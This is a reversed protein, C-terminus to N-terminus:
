HSHSGVTSREYVGNPELRTLLRVLSVKTAATLIPADRLTAEVGARTGPRDMAADLVIEEDSRLAANLVDAARARVSVPSSATCCEDLAKAVITQREGTPIAAFRDAALGFGRRRVDGSASATCEVLLEAAADAAGEWDSRREFVDAAALLVEAPPDDLNLLGTTTEVTRDDAVGFRDAALRIAMSQIVPAGTRIVRKLLAMADADDVPHANSRIAVELLATTHDPVLVPLLDGVLDALDAGTLAPTHEDAVTRLARESTTPDLETTLSEVAPRIVGYAVSDDVVAATVAALLAEDPVPSSRDETIPDLVSRAEDWGVHGADIAATVADCAAARAPGYDIEIGHELVPRTTAWEITRDELLTKVIALADVAAEPNTEGNVAREVVTSLLSEVDECDVRGADLLQELSGVAEQTVRSDNHAIADQYLPQITSWGVAGHYCGGGAAYLARAVVADTDHALGDAILDWADDWTLHNEEFGVVLSRLAPDALEPSDEALAQRLFSRLADWDVRDVLRGAAKTAAIRVEEDQHSRARRLFPAADDWDVGTSGVSAECCDVAALIPATDGDVAACAELLPEIDGWDVTWEHNVLADHLVIMAHERIAPRTDDVARNLFAILDAPSDTGRIIAQGFLDVASVALEGGRDIADVAFPRVDAWDFAGKFVGISVVKTAEHATEEDLGLALVPAVAEWKPTTHVVITGLAELVADSSIANRERIADAFLSRAQRIDVHGNIVADRVGAITTEAIATSRDLARELDPRYRDFPLEGVSIAAALGMFATHATRNHDHDLVAEILPTVADWGVSEKAALGVAVELGTETVRPVPDDVATEFWDAVESWEAHGTSLALRITHIAERRVRDSDSRIAADLFRRCASWPVPDDHNGIDFWQPPNDSMPDHPGRFLLGGGVARVAERVVADNAHDLGAWLLHEVSEVSVTGAQFGGQIAVFGTQAIDDAPHRVARDLLDVLPEEDITGATVAHLLSGTAQHAVDESEHYLGDRILHTVSRLRLWGEHLAVGILTLVREAVAATENEVGRELLPLVTAPDVAGDRLGLFITGAAVEASDVSSRELCEALFSRFPAIGVTGDRILEAAAAALYRREHDTATSPLRDYLAQLQATTLADKDLLRYVFLVSTEPDIDSELDVTTTGRFLPEVLDFADELPVRDDVVADALLAVISALTEDDDSRRLSHELWRRATSDNWSVHGARLLDAVRVALARRGVEPVREFVARFFPKVATWDTEDTEVATYAAHVGAEVVAPPQGLLDHFQPEVNQWEIAGAGLCRAIGIVAGHRVVPIPSALGRRLLPAVADPDCDGAAVADGLLELDFATEVPRDGRSALRETPDEDLLRELKRVTTVQEFSVDLSQIAAALAIFATRRVRYAPDDFAHQLHDVVDAWPWEVSSEYAVLVTRVVACRVGTDENDAATELLTAFREREARTVEDPVSRFRDGIAWIAAVRQATEEADHYADTIAVVPDDAAVLAEVQRDLWRRKEDDNWDDPPGPHDGTDHRRDRDGNDQSATDVPDSEGVPGDRQNETSEVGAPEERRNGLPLRHRVDAPEDTQDASEPVLSRDTQHRLEDTYTTEIDLALSYTERDSLGYIEMATSIVTALHERPDTVHRDLITERLETSPELGDLYTEVARLTRLRVAREPDTILHGLTFLAINRAQDTKVDGLAHGTSHAVAARRAPHDATAFEGLCTRAISRVRDAGDLARVAAVAKAQLHQRDQRELGSPGDANVAEDATSADGTGGTTGTRDEQSDSMSRGIAIASADYPGGDSFIDSEGPTSVDDVLSSLPARRQRSNISEEAQAIPDPSETRAAAVPDTGQLVAVLGLPPNDAALAHGLAGVAVTRVAPEDAALARCMLRNLDDAGPHARYARGLLEVAHATARTAAKLSRNILPVYHDAVTSTDVFAALDGLLEFMRIRPEVALHRDLSVLVSVHADTALESPAREAVAELAALAADRVDEPGTSKVGAAIRQKEGAQSASALAELVFPLRDVGEVPEREIATLAAVLAEDYQTEVESDPIKM